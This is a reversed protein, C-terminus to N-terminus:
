GGGRSRRLEGGFSVTEIRTNKEPVAEDLTARIKEHASGSEKGYSLYHHAQSAAQIRRPNLNSAPIVAGANSNKM